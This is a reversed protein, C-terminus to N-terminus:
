SHAHGDTRRWTWHPDLLEALKARADAEANDGDFVWRQGHRSEAGGLRQWVDWRGTAKDRRLWLDQRALRGWTGNWWREVTADESVM